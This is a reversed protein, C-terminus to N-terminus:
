RNQINFKRKVDNHAKQRRASSEHYLLDAGEESEGNEGERM